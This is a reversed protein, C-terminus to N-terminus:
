VNRLIADASARDLKTIDPFEFRNGDVDTLIVRNGSLEQTSDKPNRVVFDAQGRNTEVSWYVSGFEEKVSVVRKVVPVFYRLELEEDLLERSERDLHSPDGILGIDKGAGDLLGIYRDPNSVPFARHVGISLFSCQEALTLRTVGAVRLIRLESPNLLHLDSFNESSM